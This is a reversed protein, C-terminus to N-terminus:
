HTIEIQDDARLSAHAAAKPLCLSLSSHSLKLDVTM